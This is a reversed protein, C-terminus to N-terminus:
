TVRLLHVDTEGLRMAAARDQQTITKANEEPQLHVERREYLTWLAADLEPRPVNPLHARLAVLTIWDRPDRALAAYAQTIQETVPATVGNTPPAFVQRLTLHQQDLHRSLGQLVAYLPGLGMTGNPVEATLETAAWQWGADALTLTLVTRGTEVNKGKGVRILEASRLKDRQPKSLELRFRDKLEPNSLPQGAAMLAFMTGREKPTLKM